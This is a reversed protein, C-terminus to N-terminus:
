KYDRMDVNNVFEDLSEELEDPHVTAIEGNPMAFNFADVSKGKPTYIEAYEGGSWKVSWGSPHQVHAHLGHIEEGKEDTDDQLSVVSGRSTRTPQMPFHKLRNAAEEKALARFGGVGGLLINEASEWLHNVRAHTEMEREEREPLNFQEGFSDRGPM